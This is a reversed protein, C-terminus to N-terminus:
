LYPGLPYLPACPSENGKSGEPVHRDPRAEWALTDYHADFFLPLMIKLTSPFLGVGVWRAPFLASFHSFAKPIEERLSSESLSYTRSRIPTLVVEKCPISGCFHHHSGCLGTTAVQVVADLKLVSRFDELPGFAPAM